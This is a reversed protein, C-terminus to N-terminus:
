LKSQQMVFVRPSAQTPCCTKRLTGSVEFAKALRMGESVRATLIDTRLLHKVAVTEKAAKMQDASHRMATVFSLDPEAVVVQVVAVRELM